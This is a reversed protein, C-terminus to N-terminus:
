GSNEELNSEEGSKGDQEMLDGVLHSWLTRTQVRSCLQPAPKKNLCSLAWLSLQVAGTGWLVGLTWGDERSHAPRCTPSKAMRSLAPKSRHLAARMCSDVARTPTSPAQKARHAWDGCPVPSVPSARESCTATVTIKSASCDTTTQSNKYFVGRGPHQGEGRSAEEVYGQHVHHRVQQLLRAQPVDSM